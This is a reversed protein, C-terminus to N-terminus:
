SATTKFITLVGDRHSVRFRGYHKTDRLATAAARIRQPFRTQDKYHWDAEFEKLGATILVDIDGRYGKPHGLNHRISQKPFAAGAKEIESRIPLYFRSFRVLHKINM